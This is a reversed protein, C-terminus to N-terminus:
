SAMRISPSYMGVDWPVVAPTIRPMPVIPGHSGSRGSGSLGVAGVSPQAAQSTVYMLFDRLGLM